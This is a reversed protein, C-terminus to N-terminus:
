GARRATRGRDGSGRSRGAADARGIGFLERMAERVEREGRWSSSSHTGGEVLVLRKPATAREYLQQGFRSPVLRDETGHVVLLPAKVQPVVAVSDFRETILMGVPLWGWRFTSVMDGISTFTGEVIVGRPALAPPAEALGAALQVAVAGGLSHGFVYRAAEPHQEALWRWAAMADEVVGAESPQVDTSNGFGRYDIALVSFGLRRLQDIRWTNRALDRRVGHLYLAVPAGRDDNPAWFAHLRITQGASASAHEIWQSTMGFARAQEALEDASTEPLPTAQFIWKRQQSELAGCGAFLAAAVAAAGLWTLPRAHLRPRAGANPAIASPPASPQRPM